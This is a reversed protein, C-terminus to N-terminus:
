PLSSSFFISEIGLIASFEESFEYNGDALPNVFCGKCSSDTQYFLWFFGNILLSQIYIKDKPINLGSKPIVQHGQKTLNQHYQTVDKRLESDIFYLVGKPNSFVFYHEAESLKLLLGRSPSINEALSFDFVQGSKSVMAIHPIPFKRLFKDKLLKPQVIIPPKEPWLIILLQVIQSVAILSLICTMFIGLWTIRSYSEEQSILDEEELIWEQRKKPFLKEIFELYDTKHQKQQLDDILSHECSQSNEFALEAVKQQNVEFLSEHDDTSDEIQDKNKKQDEQIESKVEHKKVERAEDTSDKIQDKNKEKDEQIESKIEHTKSERAEDTSDKIQDKNKEKDEQIESKIEHEKAERAVVEVTPNQDLSREKM